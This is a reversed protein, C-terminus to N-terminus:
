VGAAKAQATLLRSRLADAEAVHGSSALAASLAETELASLTIKPERPGKVKAGAEVAAAEAEVQAKETFREHAAQRTMGLAEGIETWSAGRGRARAVMEREVASALAPLTRAAIAAALPERTDQCAEVARTLHRRVTRYRTM